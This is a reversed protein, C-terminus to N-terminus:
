LSGYPSSRCVQKPRYIEELKRNTNNICTKHKFNKPLIFFFELLFSNVFPDFTLTYIECLNLLSVPGLRAVLSGTVRPDFIYFATILMPHTLSDGRYHGLTPRPAALYCNFFFIAIKANESYSNLDINKNLINAM